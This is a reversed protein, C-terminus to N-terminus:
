GSVRHALSHGLSLTMADEAVAAVPDPLGLTDSAARRVAVMAFSAAVAGVAGALASPALPERRAAAVAAGVLAGSAIRGALAPPDTRAPMGPLKDAIMEGLAAATLARRAFTSGLSDAPQRLRRRGGLAHSLLAPASMSRMGATWGLGAALTPTALDM